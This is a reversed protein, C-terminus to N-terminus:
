ANQTVYGLADMYNDWLDKLITSVMDWLGDLIDPLSKMVVDLSDRSKEALSGMTSGTATVSEIVAEKLLDLGSSIISGIAGMLVELLYEFCAKIIDGLQDLAGHIVEGPVKFAQIILVLLYATVSFILRTILNSLTTIIFFIFNLFFVIM